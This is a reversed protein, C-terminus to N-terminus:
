ADPLTYDDSGDGNVTSLAVLTEYQVRGSRGGTGITRLNWGKNARTSTNGDGDDGLGKIAIATATTEDAKDFYQSNNGTGSILVIKYPKYTLGTPTGATTVISTTDENTLTFGTVNPSTGTVASVEYIKPSTYGTISGTGGLTGSILIHDGAALTAASCTFQGATGSIAVGTLATNGSVVDSSAAVRFVSSTLGLASVYYTNGNTLGTASTGGANYYKVTSGTTLGHGTYTFSENSTSVNATPITVAPNNISITPVTEYSSGANTITINTVKGGAVTATAAAGSGGGGSFAVVPAEVYGSGAITISAGTINDGGAHIETGDVMFLGITQGTTYVDATTNGYLLEVNAATPASANTEVDTVNMITSNVAWYPANAANDNNGWSSM